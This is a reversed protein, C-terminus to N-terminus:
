ASMEQERRWQAAQQEIRRYAWRRFPVAYLTCDRGFNGSLIFRRVDPRRNNWGPARECELLARLVDAPLPTHKM